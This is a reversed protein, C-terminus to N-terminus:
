PSAPLAMIPLWLYANIVLRNNDVKRGSEKFIGCFIKLAMIYLGAPLSRM